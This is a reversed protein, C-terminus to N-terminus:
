EAFKKINERNECTRLLALIYLEQEEIRYDYYMKKKVMKQM